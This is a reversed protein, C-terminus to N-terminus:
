WYRVKGTDIHIFEPYRGVGGAKLSKAIRVLRRNSVGEISFDIARGELHMSNKSVHRGNRRLLRNYLSSRYGSIITIEKNVGCRDKIDCLLDIVNIDIPVVENTYHCRLFYNIRNIADPDHVGSSFYVVSLKEYTHINYMKLIRDPKQYAYVGKFPYYAATALLAKLFFRRSIM